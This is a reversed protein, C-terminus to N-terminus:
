EPWAQQFGADAFDILSLLELESWGLLIELEADYAADRPADAVHDAWSDDLCLYADERTLESGGKYLNAYSAGYKKAYEAVADQRACVAEDIANALNRLTEQADM